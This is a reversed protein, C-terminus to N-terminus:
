NLELVTVPNKKQQKKINMYSLIHLSLLQRLLHPNEAPDHCIRFVMRLFSNMNLSSPSGAAVNQQEHTRLVTLGDRTAVTLQEVSLNGVLLKGEWKLNTHSICFLSLIDQGKVTVYHSSATNRM